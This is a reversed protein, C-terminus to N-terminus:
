KETPAPNLQSTPALSNNEIVSSGNRLKFAGTSVVTEGGNLGSTVAVFDGRREGLRVFKRQATLNAKGSADKGPELTFVSDGFPAYLVATAPITVVRNPTDSLVQVDVFMGPELRGDENPLTGRVRVNRTSLDVEPNVVSVEGNWVRGGFTDTTMRVKRGPKLDALAQQPLWFDVYIPTVSQLSGIPTGPSVVQGLEVQRIAIRGDFPARVTKKAITAELTAVTSATTAARGEADDFEAQTIGGKQFLAKARALKSKALAADASAGVLQAEETSTDLKVLVEGKKVAAGSEYSIQRVLGPIEASVTVARVAVLTGAAGQIGEWDSLEAKASTVAEPPPAFSGGAAMMTRIQMVKIGGLVAVVGILGLALLFWRFKGSTSPRPVVLELSAEPVTPPMPHPSRSAEPVTPPPM